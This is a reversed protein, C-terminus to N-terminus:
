YSFTGIKGKRGKFHEKSREAMELKLDESKSWAQEPTLRTKLNKRTM